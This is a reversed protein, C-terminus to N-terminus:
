ARRRTGWIDPKTQGLRGDYPNFGRNREEFGDKLLELKVQERVKDLRRAVPAAADKRASSRKDTITDMNNLDM